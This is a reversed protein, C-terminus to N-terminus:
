RKEFRHGRRDRARTNGTRCPHRDCAPAGEAKKVMIEHLKDGQVPQGLVPSTPDPLNTFRTILFDKDRMAEMDAGIKLNLNMFNISQTAM